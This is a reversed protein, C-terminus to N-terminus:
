LFYPVDRESPWGEAFKGTQWPLACIQTSGARHWIVPEEFSGTLPMLRRVPVWDTRIRENTHTSAAIFLFMLIL